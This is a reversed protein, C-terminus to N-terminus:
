EAKREGCSCFDDALMTPMVVKPIYFRKNNCDGTENEMHAWHKCDKCRVVEVADVAPADEAFFEAEVQGIEDIVSVIGGGFALSYGTNEVANLTYSGYADILYKERSSM